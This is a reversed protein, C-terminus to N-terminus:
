VRMEAGPLMTPIVRVWAKGEFLWATGPSGRGPAGKTAVVPDFNTRLGRARSRPAATAIAKSDASAAGALAASEGLSLACVVRM